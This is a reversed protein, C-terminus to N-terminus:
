TLLLRYLLIIYQLVFPFNVYDNYFLPCIVKERPQRSAKNLIKVRVKKRQNSGNKKLIVRVENM